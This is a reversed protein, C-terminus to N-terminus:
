KARAIRRCVYFVFSWWVALAPVTIFLVGLIDDSGLSQLNSM